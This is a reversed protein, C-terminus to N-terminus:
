SAPVESTDLARKVERILSEPLRNEPKANENHHLIGELTRVSLPKDVLEWPCGMKLAVTKRIEDDPPIEAGTKGDLITEYLFPKAPQLYVTKDHQIYGFRAYLKRDHGIGFIRHTTM